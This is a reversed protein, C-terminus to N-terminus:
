WAIACKEAKGMGLLCGGGGGGGGGNITKTRYDCRIVDDSFSDCNTSCTGSNPDRDYDYIEGGCFADESEDWARYRLYIKSDTLAKLNITCEDGDYVPVCEVLVNDQLIDPDILTEDYYQCTCGSTSIFEVKDNLWHLHVGGGLPNSDSHHYTLEVNFIDGSSVTSPASISVSPCCDNHPNLNCNDDCNDTEPYKEDCEISGTYGPCSSECSGDFIICESSCFDIRNNNGYSCTSKETSRELEDCELSATCSSGRIGYSGPTGSDASECKLYGSGANTTQIHYLYDCQVCVNNDCVYNCCCDSSSECSKGEVLDRVAKRVNIRGEGELYPDFVHKDASKLADIIEDMDAEPNAEKLLAVLGSVHPVAQSTGSWAVYREDGCILEGYEEASSRAACIKYGPAVVDPKSTGQTVSGRGSWFLVQDKLGSESSFIRIRITDDIGSGYNTEYWGSGKSYHPRVGVEIIVRSDGPFPETKEWYDDGKEDGGPDWGEDYFIYDHKHKWMGEVKVTVTTQGGTIITQDFGTGDNSQGEWEYEYYGTAQGSEDDIDVIVHVPSSGDWDNYGMNDYDVYDKKFTAGVAVVEDICAPFHVSGDWIGLDSSSAVVPIEHNIIAENRLTNYIDWAPGVSIGSCDDDNTYEIYSLSLSMVDPNRDIAWYIANVLYDEPCDTGTALCVRSIILDAAPAVGKYKEDALTAGTGAAISAVHTGHGYFSPDIPTDSEGYGDYWEISKDEFDKHTADIGTDFIAIKRGAGTLEQYGSEPVWGYPWYIASKSVDLNIRGMTVNRVNYGEERLSNVIDEYDRIPIDLSVYAAKPSNRRVKVSEGTISIIKQYHTAWLDSDYPMDSPTVNPAIVVIAQTKSPKSEPINSPKFKIATVDVLFSGLALLIILIGLKVCLKPKTNM